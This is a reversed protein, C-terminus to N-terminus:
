VIMRTDHVGIGTVKFANRSVQKVTDLSGCTPCEVKIDTKEALKEFLKHCDRCYYDNLIKM